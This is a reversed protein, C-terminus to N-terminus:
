DNLEKLAEQIDESVFFQKGAYYTEIRRLAAIVQPDRDRLSRFARAASGHNMHAGWYNLFNLGTVEEILTMTFLYVLEPFSDRKDLWQILAPTVEPQHAKLVRVAKEHASDDIPDFIKLDSAWESLKRGEITPNPEFAPTYKGVFFLIVYAATLSLIAAVVRHVVKRHCWWPVDLIRDTEIM